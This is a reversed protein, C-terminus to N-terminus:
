ELCTSSAVGLSLGDQDPLRYGLIVAESRIRRALALALALTDRATAAATVAGIDSGFELLARM